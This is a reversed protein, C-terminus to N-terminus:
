DSRLVTVSRLRGESASKWYMSQGERLGILAVGLESLISIADGHRPVEMPYVLRGVREKPSGNERIRVTSGMAVLGFWPEVLEARALERHLFGAIEPLAPRAAEALWALRHFDDSGIAIPPVAHVLTTASM